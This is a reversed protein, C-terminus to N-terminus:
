TLAHKTRDLFVKIDSSKVISQGISLLEFFVSDKEALKYDNRYNDLLLFKREREKEDNRKPDFHAGGLKNSVYLILEQRSIKKSELIICTSNRYESLRFPKPVVNKSREYNQKIEQPTLKRNMNYEFTGQIQMHNYTAGGAFAQNIITLELNGVLEDLNVAHIIPQKPLGILHWAKGLDNDSVLRRLITSTNRLSVDSVEQNWEDILYKLDEAVLKILELNNM